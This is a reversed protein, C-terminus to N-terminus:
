NIKFRNKRGKLCLYNLSKIDNGIKIVKDLEKWLMNPVTNGYKNKNLYSKFLMKKCSQSIM